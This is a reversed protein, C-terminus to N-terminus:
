GKRYQVVLNAAGVWCEIGLRLTYEEGTLELHENFEEDVADGAKFTVTTPEPLTSLNNESSIFTKPFFKGKRNGSTGTSPSEARIGQTTGWLNEVNAVAVESKIINRGARIPIVGCTYCGNRDKGNYQWGTECVESGNLTIRYKIGYRDVPQLVYKGQPFGRAVMGKLDDKYVDFLNIEDSEKIGNIESDRCTIGIWGGCPLYSRHMALRDFHEYPYHRKIILKREAEGKSLLGTGNWVHSANFDIIVWGDREATFEVSPMMNGEKGESVYGTTNTSPILAAGGDEWDSTAFIHSQFVECFTNKKFQHSKLREGDELSLNERSLNGNIEDTFEKFNSNFDDPNLIEGKDPKSKPFRYGV